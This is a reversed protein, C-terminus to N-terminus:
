NEPKSKQKSEKQCKHFSEIGSRVLFDYISPSSQRQQEASRLATSSRRRKLEGGPRKFNM